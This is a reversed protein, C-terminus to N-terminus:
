RDAVRRRRSSELVRYRRGREDDYGLRLAARRGSRFRPRGCLSVAGSRAGSFRHEAEHVELDMVVAFAPGSARAARQLRILGSQDSAEAGPPNRTPCFVSCTPEEGFRNFRPSRSTPRCNCKKHVRAHRQKAAEWHLGLQQVSISIDFRPAQSAAGTATTVGGDHLNTTCSFQAPGSRHIIM